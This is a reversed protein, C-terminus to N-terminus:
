WEKGPLLLMLPCTLTILIVELMNSIKQRNTHEM